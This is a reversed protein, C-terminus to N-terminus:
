GSNRKEGSRLLRYQRKRRKEIRSTAAADSITLSTKLDAQLSPIVSGLIRFKSLSGVGGVDAERDDVERLFVLSLDADVGFAPYSRSFSTSDFRIRRSFSSTCNTASLAKEKREIQIQQLLANNIMWTAFVRMSYEDVEVRSELLKRRLFSSDRKENAIRGTGGISSQYM